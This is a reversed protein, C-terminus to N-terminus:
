LNEYPLFPMSQDACLKVSDKKAIFFNYLRPKKSIDNNKASKHAKLQKNKSHLNLELAQGIKFRDKRFSSIGNIRQVEKRYYIKM